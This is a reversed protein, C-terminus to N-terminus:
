KLSAFIIFFFIKFMSSVNPFSLFFILANLTIDKANTTIATTNEYLPKANAASPANSPTTLGIVFRISEITLGNSTSTPDPPVIKQMKRPTLYAVASSGCSFSFLFCASLVAM